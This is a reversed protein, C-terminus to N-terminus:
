LYAMTASFYKSMCYDQPYTPAANSLQDIIPTLEAIPPCELNESACIAKLRNYIQNERTSRENYASYLLYAASYVLLDRRIDHAPINLHDDPRIYELAILEEATVLQMETATMDICWNFLSWCITAVKSGFSPGTNVLFARLQGGGLKAVQIIEVSGVAVLNTLSAFSQRAADVAADIGAFKEPALNCLKAATGVTYQTSCVLYTSRNFAPDDVSTHTLFLIEVGDNVAYGDNTDYMNETMMIMQGQGQGELLEDCENFSSMWRATTLTLDQPVGPLNRFFVQVGEQSAASFVPM